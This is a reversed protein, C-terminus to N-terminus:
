IAGADFAVTDGFKGRYGGYVDLEVSSSIPAASTSLDSLWSINSGWTGLYWGNDFAFEVGAQIAPDRDTQSVGRFVYDSTLAATGSVGALALGPISALALAILAYSKNM